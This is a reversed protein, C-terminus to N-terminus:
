LSESKIRKAPREAAAAAASPTSVSHMSRKKSHPGMEVFHPPLTRRMAQDDRHADVDEEDIEAICQMEVASLVDYWQFRSAPAECARKATQIWTETKAM